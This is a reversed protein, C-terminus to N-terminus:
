LTCCDSPSVYNGYPDQVLTLAHFVIETILQIRQRNSGHEICRQIICCGHRHAAVNVCHAVVTDYIFQNDEPTLYYLCAQVVHNGRSDKVLVVVHTSLATSISRVQAGYSSPNAQRRTPLFSIIKQLARTGHMDLSIGVLDHAISECIATRQEDTSYQFLRQCLYNGFPDTMLNALLGFTEHFIIDRYTAVGEQLKMQLYRCGHQGKCLTPIEGVLAELCPGAFRNFRAHVDGCEYTIDRPGGANHDNKYTFQLDALILDYPSENPQCRATSDGDVRNPASAAYSYSGFIPTSAAKDNVNAALDDRNGQASNLTVLTGYAGLLDSAYSRSLTFM